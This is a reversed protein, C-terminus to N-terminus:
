TEFLVNSSFSFCDLIIEKEAIYSASIINAIIEFEYIWVAINKNSEDIACNVNSKLLELSLVSLLWIFM